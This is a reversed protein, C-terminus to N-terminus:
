MPSAYTPTPTHKRAPTRAQVREDAYELARLSGRVSRRASAIDVLLCVVFAFVVIYQVTKLVKQFKSSTLRPRTQYIFLAIQTHIYTHTHTHTNIHHTHTHM